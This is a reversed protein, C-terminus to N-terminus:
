DSKANCYTDTEDKKLNKFNKDKNRWLFIGSGMGGESGAFTWLVLGFVFCALMIITLLTNVKDSPTVLKREKQQLHQQISLLDM